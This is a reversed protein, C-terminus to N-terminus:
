RALGAYKRMFKNLFDKSLGKFDVIDGKYKKIFDEALNEPSKFKTIMAKDNGTKEVNNYNLGPRVAVFKEALQYIPSNTFLLARYTDFYFSEHLVPTGDYFWSRSTEKLGLSTGSGFSVCTLGSDYMRIRLGEIPGEPRLLPIRIDLSYETIPEDAFLRVFDM